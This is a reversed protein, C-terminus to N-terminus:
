RKDNHLYYKINVKLCIGVALAPQRSKIYITSVGVYADPVLPSCEIARLYSELAQETLGLQLFVQGLNFHGKFDTPNQKCYQQFVNEANHFKRAKMLMTGYALVSSLNNM